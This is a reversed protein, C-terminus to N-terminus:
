LTMSEITKFMWMWNVHQRYKGVYNVTKYIIVITYEVNGFSYSLLSHFFM